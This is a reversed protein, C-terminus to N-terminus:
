RSARRSRLHPVPGRRPRGDHGHIGARILDASEFSGAEGLAARGPTLADAQRSMIQKRAMGTRVLENVAESLGISRERRM